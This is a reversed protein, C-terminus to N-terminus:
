GGTDIGAQAPYELGNDAFLPRAQDDWLSEVHGDAFGIIRRQDGDFSRKDYAAITTRRAPDSSGLDVGDVYVYDDLYAYTPRSFFRATQYPDCSPLILVVSIVLVGFARWRYRGRLLLVMFMAYLALPVTYNAAGDVAKRILLYREHERSESWPSFGPPLDRVAAGRDFDGKAPDKHHWIIRQITIQKLKVV